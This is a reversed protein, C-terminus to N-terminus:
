GAISGPAFPLDEQGFPLLTQEVRKRIYWKEYPPAETRALDILILNDIEAERHGSAIRQYRGQQKLVESKERRLLKRREEPMVELIRAAEEHRFREYDQIEGRLQHEEEQKLAMNMRQRFRDGIKLDEPAFWCRVGKVQLDAYLRDAFDQDRSSYSVFARYKYAIADSM